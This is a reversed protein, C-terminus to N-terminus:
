FFIKIGATLTANFSSESVEHDYRGFISINDGVLATLGAGAFARQKNTNRIKNNFSETLAGTFAARLEGGTNLYEMRWGGWLEPLLQLDDNVNFYKGIRVEIDQLLSQSSFSNVKLNAGGANTEIYGPDNFYTYSLGYSPTIIINLPLKFNYGLTGQINFDVATRKGIATKGLITNINRSSKLMHVGVTPSLDFFFNDWLYSGFAGFRITNDRGEGLDNYINSHSYSYALLGGLRLERSLAYDLGVVIGTTISSYGTYGNENDSGQEGYGGFVKVFGGLPDGIIKSTDIDDFSNYATSLEEPNPMDATAFTAGSGGFTSSMALSLNGMRYVTMQNRVANVTENVGTMSVSVLSSQLDTGSLEIEAQELSTYSSLSGLEAMMSQIDSNYKSTDENLVDLTKAVGDTINKRTNSLNSAKAFPDITKQVLVDYEATLSVSGSLILYYELAVSESDLKYYTNLETKTATNVTDTIDGARVYVTNTYTTGSVGGACRLDSIHGANDIGTGNADTISEVVINGFINIEPKNSIIDEKGAFGLILKSGSNQLNLGVGSNLRNFEFGSGANVSITQGANLIYDTSSEFVFSNNNNLELNNNFMIDTLHAANDSDTGTIILNQITYIDEKDDNVFWGTLNITDYNTTVDTSNNSINLYGGRAVDINFIGNNEINELVVKNPAYTFHPIDIIGGTAVNLYATEAANVVLRSITSTSDVGKIELEGALKLSTIESESQVQMDIILKQGSIISTVDSTSSDGNGIRFNAGNINLITATSDSIQEWKNLRINGKGTISLSTNNATIQTNSAYYKYNSATTAITASSDITLIGSDVKADQDLELTGGGNNFIVGQGSNPSCKETLGNSIVINSLDRAIAPTIMILSIGLFYLLKIVYNQKVIFINM